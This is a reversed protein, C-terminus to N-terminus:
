LMVYFEFGYKFQFQFFIFGNIKYIAEIVAIPTTPSTHCSSIIFILSLVLSEVELRKNPNKETNPMWQRTICM